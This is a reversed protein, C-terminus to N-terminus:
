PGTRCCRGRRPRAAGASWWRRARARWGTTWRRPCGCTGRRTGRGRSPLPTDRQSVRRLGSLVRRLEGEGEVPARRRRLLALQEDRRGLAGAGVDRAEAVVWAHLGDAHAAHAQDVDLARAARGQGRGAEDRDGVAHDDVGGVLPDLLGLVAHELEQQGVVRQVAGDAVLAALARQLVLRQGVARALASEDLLLPVELLGDGDGVEHQEVALATDLAGAAGAERGLHGALRLDVERAAALRDLDGGEGGLGELGVEAAVRHLDARHARQGRRGIAERRPGPVEILDLRGAGGARDPAPDGHLRRLVAEGPQEADVRIRDVVTPEAVLATEGVLRDVAVLDVGARQRALQRVLGDVDRGGGGGLDDAEAHAAALEEALGALRPAELVPAEDLGADALLALEDRDAPALGDGGRRGADAGGLVGGAGAGDRQDAAGAEGVFRGVGPRLQGLADDARVGDVRLEAVAQGGIHHETQGPGGDVLGARRGDEDRQGTVQALLERDQEEAQALRHGAARGRQDLDGGGRGRQARQRGRGQADARAVRRRHGPCQGTVVGRHSSEAGVVVTGRQGLPRQLRSAPQQGIVGAAIAHHDHGAPGGVGLGALHGGVRQAGECDRQGLRREERRQAPAVHEAGEVHPQRRPDQRAPDAETSPPVAERRGPPRHGRFGPERRGVDQGGHRALALGACLHAGQHQQPRIRQAVEGIAGHGLLRERGPVEDDGHRAVRGLRDVHVGIHHQGAGHGVLPGAGRGVELSPHGAEAGLDRCRAEGPRVPHDGGLEGGGEAGVQPHGAQAVEDVLDRQGRRGVGPQVLLHQVVM